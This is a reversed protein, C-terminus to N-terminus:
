RRQQQQQNRQPIPMGGAQQQARRPAHQHADDMKVTVSKSAHRLMTANKYIKQSPDRSAAAGGAAARLERDDRGMDAYPQFHAHSLPASPPLSASAYDFPQV